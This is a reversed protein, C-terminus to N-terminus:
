KQTSMAIVWYKFDWKCPKNKMYQVLHWRVKSKVMWTSVPNISNFASRRSTTQLPHIKRLPNSAMAAEEETTIV